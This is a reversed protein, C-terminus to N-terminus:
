LFHELVTVELASSVSRFIARKEEFQLLAWYRLWYTGRFVEQLFLNYKM